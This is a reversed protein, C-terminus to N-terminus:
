FKVSVGASFNIGTDDAFYRLRNLYNRYSVDLLNDVRSFFRIRYGSFQLETSMNFGILYYSDPPPLFDIEEPFRSQQWVYKLESGIEINEFRRNFLVQDEIVKQNLRVSLNAPPIYILPQNQSRDNGRVFSYTSKIQWREAIKMQGSLDVGYIEANTQAYTFVPFAGRITLRIEDDPKLFIYDNIQQYYALAEFAFIRDDNYQFSFSAKQSRETNLTPDGEEIGSVGQHLGNSYLENIAPNRMAYGVNLASEFLSNWVQKWGLSGSINHFDNEFRIIEIPPTRSITPVNQYIFDYRIGLEFLAAKYDKNFLTFLGFENSLYDPILPLVGTEPNNTNNTINSQLGAKLSSFNQFEQAYTVGSFANWQQLSLAPIDSRGSRRVDFEKRSNYQFAADITIWRNDSFFYKTTSKLLQHNVDQKPADIDYSFENETFFPIDRNFAAQLDTLNGIHSGRLVGIKANFSSFYLNSSLVESFSKELQVAFNAERMGTNTLFYDPSKKDGSRKFTGTVKWDVIKSAKQLQLNTSHGRGNSNFVYTGVGHLHPENDIDEPEVKVIGGLNSGPYELAGVGKVVSIRNAVLPDIEPSHDNGWQQGSQVIGNNLITIRNGYLGHIIPKSIGAGTKLTTVGSIDELLDSLNEDARDSITQSSITQTNQTGTPIHHGTVVVGELLKSTHELEINLTDDSKLEIYKQEPMCGIHSFVIHYSGECLGNLEYFGQEDSTSGGGTEVIYVNVYALGEETEHDSVKGQLSLDCEQATLNGYFMMLLIFSFEGLKQM